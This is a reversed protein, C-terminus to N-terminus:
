NNGSNSENYGELIELIKKLMKNQEEFKRGLESLLYQAQKNNESSVDNHASQERNEQLNLIALYVSFLGIADLEKDM